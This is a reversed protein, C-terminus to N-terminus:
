IKIQSRNKALSLYHTRIGNFDEQRLKGVKDLFDEVERRDALRELSGKDMCCSHVQKSNFKSIWFGNCSEKDLDEIILIPDGEEDMWLSSVEKGMRKKDEGATMTKLPVGKEIRDNVYDNLNKKFAKDFLDPIRDKAKQLASKLPTKFKVPDIKITAEATAMMEPDFAQMAKIKAEAPIDLSDIYDIVAIRKEDKSRSEFGKKKNTSWRM